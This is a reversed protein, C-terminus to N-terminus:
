QLLYNYENYMVYDNLRGAGIPSARDAIIILCPNGACACQHYGHAASSNTQEIISGLKMKMPLYSATNYLRM